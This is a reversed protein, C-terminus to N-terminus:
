NPPGHAVGDQRIQVTGAIGVYTATKIIVLDPNTDQVANFAYYLRLTDFGVVGDADTYAIVGELRATRSEGLNNDPGTIMKRYTEAQSPDWPPLGNIGSVAVTGVPTFVASQWGDCLYGSAIEARLQGLQWNGKSDRLFRGRLSFEALCGLPAKLVNAAGPGWSDNLKVTKDKWNNV